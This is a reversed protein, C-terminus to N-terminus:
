METSFAGASLQDALSDHRDPNLTGFPKGSLYVRKGAWQELWPMKKGIGGTVEDRTIQIVIRQLKVGKGFAAALDAPDVAEVSAPNRIDRFRVMFPCDSWPEHVLSPVPNFVEPCHLSKARGAMNSIERLKEHRQLTKGRHGARERTLEDRFLAEPAMRVEAGRYFGEPSRGESLAFLTGRGPLDIAVAEGNFKFKYSKGGLSVNEAISYSWVSSGARKVGNDNVEVIVRYNVRASDGCGSLMLASFTSIAWLKKVPCDKRWSAKGLGQNPIFQCFISSNQDAIRQYDPLDGSYESERM